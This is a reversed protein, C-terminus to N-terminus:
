MKQYILLYPIRKYTTIEDSLKIEEIIQQEKSEKYAYWIDEKTSSKCYATLVKKNELCKMMCILKYNINVKNNVFNKKLNLEMNYNFTINYEEKRKKTEISIILIKPQSKFKIRGKLYKKCKDCIIKIRLNFLTEININQEELEKLIEDNYSLIYQTTSNCNNKCKCKDESELEFFFIDNIFSNKYKNFSKEIENFKYDIKLNNNYNLQQEYNISLLIYEILLHIDNFIGIKKSLTQIETLFIFSHDKDDNNNNSNWMYNMLKYFLMTVIKKEHIIKKNYLNNRNLFIDKLPRINVLCQIIGNYFPADNNMLSRSYIENKYITININENLILFSGIEELKNNILHQKTKKTFDIGMEDLYAEIGKKLIYKDIEKIMNKKDLYDLVFEPEYVEQGLLYFYIANVNKDFIGFYLNHNCNNDGYVFFVKTIILKKENVPDIDIVKKIIPCSKEILGFYIWYEYEFTTKNSKPSISAPLFEKNDINLQYNIWGENILYFEKFNNYEINLYQQIIIDKNKNKKIEDRIIGLINEDNKSDNYEKLKWFNNEFSILKFIKKSNYFCLYPENKYIFYLITGDNQKKKKNRLIKQVKEQYFIFYKNNNNNIDNIYDNYYEILSINELIINENKLIFILNEFEKITEKIYNDREEKSPKNIYSKIKDFSLISKFKNLNDENILLVETINFDNINKTINEINLIDMKIDLRGNIDIGKFLEVFTNKNKKLFKYVKNFQEESINNLGEKEPNNENIM